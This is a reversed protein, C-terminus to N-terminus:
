RVTEESTVNQGYVMYIECNIEAASINEVPLLHTAAHIKCSTPNDIAPWMM